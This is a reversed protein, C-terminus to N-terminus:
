RPPAGPPVDNGLACECVVGNAPGVAATAPPPPQVGGASEDPSSPAAVEGGGGCTSRLRAEYYASIRKLEDVAEQALDLTFPVPFDRGFLGPPPMTVMPSTAGNVASSTAVLVVLLLTSM